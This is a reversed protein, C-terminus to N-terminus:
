GHGTQSWDAGASSRPSPSMGRPEASEKQQPESNYSSPTAHPVGLLVANLM